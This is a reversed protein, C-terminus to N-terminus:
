GSFACPYFPWAIRTHTGFEYSTDAVRGDITGVIRSHDPLIELLEYFYELEEKPVGKGRLAKLKAELQARGAILENLTKQDMQEAM